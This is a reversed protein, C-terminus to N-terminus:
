LKTWNDANARGGPGPTYRYGGETTPTQDPTKQKPETLRASSQSPLLTSSGGAEAKKPAKTGLSRVKGGKTVAYVTGDEGEQIDYIDGAELQKGIKALAASKNIDLQSRFAELRYTRQEERLAERQEATEAQKALEVQNGFQLGLKEKDQNHLRQDRRATSDEAIQLDEKRWSRDEQREAQRAAALRAERRELANQEAQMALGKGVGSLAGGLIFGGLGM